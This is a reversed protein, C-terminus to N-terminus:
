NEHHNRHRRDHRFLVLRPEHSDEMDLVFIFSTRCFGGLPADVAQDPSKFEQNFSGKSSLYRCNGIPRDSAPPFRALRECGIPLSAPSSPRGPYSSEDVEEDNVEFAELPHLELIQFLLPIVINVREKEFCKLHTHNGQEELPKKSVVQIPVVPIDVSAEEHHYDLYRVTAKSALGAAVLSPFREPGPTWM